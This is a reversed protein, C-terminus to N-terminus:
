LFNQPSPFVPTRLSFGRPASYLVLLLSLECIARLRLISNTPPLHEGRLMIYEGLVACMNDENQCKKMMEKVQHFPESYKESIQETVASPM